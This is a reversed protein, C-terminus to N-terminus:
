TWKNVPRFVLKKNCYYNHQRLPTLYCEWFHFPPKFGPKTEFFALSLFRITVARSSMPNM